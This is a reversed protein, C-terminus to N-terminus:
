TSMRKYSRAALLNAAYFRVGSPTWVQNGCRKFSPSQLRLGSFFAFDLENSTSDAVVILAPLCSSAVGARAFAATAM